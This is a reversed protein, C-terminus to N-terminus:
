RRKKNLMEKLGQAMKFNVIKYPPMNVVSRKKFDYRKKDRIEIVKFFGFHLLRVQGKKSLESVLADVLGTTDKIANKKNM